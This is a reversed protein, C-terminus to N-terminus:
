AKASEATPTGCEACFKTGASLTAGCGACTIILATGCNDCFKTGEAVEQGCEPCKVTKAEPAAVEPAPTAPMVATVLVESGGMAAINQNLFDLAGDCVETM